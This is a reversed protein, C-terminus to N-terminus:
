ADADTGGSPVTWADYARGGALVMGITAPDTCTGGRRHATFSGIGTTTIHCAGCHCTNSGSWRAGCRCQHPLDTYNRSGAAATMKDRATVTMPPEEPRAAAATGHQSLDPRTDGPVPTPSSTAGPVARSPPHPMQADATVTGAADQPRAHAPSRAGTTTRGVGMARTPSEPRM